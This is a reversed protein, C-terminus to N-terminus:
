RCATQDSPTNLANHRTAQQHQTKATFSWLHVGRPGTSKSAHFTQTTKVLPERRKRRQRLVAIAADPMTQGGSFCDQMERLDEAAM